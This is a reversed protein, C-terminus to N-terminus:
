KTAGWELLEIAKQLCDQCLDLFDFHDMFATHIRVVNTLAKCYECRDEFFVHMFEKSM